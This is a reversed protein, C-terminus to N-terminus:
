IRQKEKFFIGEITFYDTFSCKGSFENLLNDLDDEKEEEYVDIEEFIYDKCKNM